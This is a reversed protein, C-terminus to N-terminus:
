FNDLWVRGNHLIGNWFMGSRSTGKLSLFNLRLSSSREMIGRENERERM